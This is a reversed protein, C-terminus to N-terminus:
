GTTQIQRAKGNDIEFLRGAAQFPRAAAYIIQGSRGAQEFLAASRVADLESAIEDMLFVPSQGAHRRLYDAEALRLATAAARQEGVSGFRRLERGDLRVVVEDRHPGVVAYGTEAAQKRSAVLKERLMGTSDDGAEGPNPRADQELLSRDPEEGAARDSRDTHASGICSRFEYEIRRGLLGESLESARKLLSAAVSARRRTLLAGCRAVQMEWAELQEGVRSLELLRCYQALVRRYDNLLRIHDQDVKAGAMDLYERRRAPPGSVLELDSLLLPVVPLWGFFESLRSFQRGDLEFRKERGDSVLRGVRGRADEATVSLLEAGFRLLDGDRRTRFSRGTAVYHIAELLSTKGSGNPGFLYNAEPDLDLRLEDIPRFGRVELLVLAM